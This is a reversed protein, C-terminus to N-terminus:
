PHITKSHGSFHRASNNLSPVHIHAEVRRMTTFRALELMLPEFTKGEDGDIATREGKWLLVSELRPGTPHAHCAQFVTTLWGADGHGLVLHKLKSCNKLGNM